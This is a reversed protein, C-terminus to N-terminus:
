IFIFTTSIAIILSLRKSCSKLKFIAIGALIYFFGAIFNFWLVFPVYNGAGIRGEQTFLALGGEKITALGFVITLLSVIKIWTPRIKGNM